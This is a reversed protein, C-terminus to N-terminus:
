FNLKNKMLSLLEQSNIFFRSQFAQVGHEEAVEDIILVDTRNNERIILYQNGEYQMSRINESSLLYVLHGYNRKTIECELFDILKSYAFEGNSAIFKDKNFDLTM